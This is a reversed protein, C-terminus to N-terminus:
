ERLYVGEVGDAEVSPGHRGGGYGIRDGGAAGMRKLRKEFAPAPPSPLSEEVQDRLNAVERGGAGGSVGVRTMGVWAM